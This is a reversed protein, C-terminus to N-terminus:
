HNLLDESNVSPKTTMVILFILIMLSIFIVICSSIIVPIAKHGIGYILWLTNSTIYMSYLWYSATVLYKTPNNFVDITIPIYSSLSVISALVGIIQYTMDMKTHKECEKPIDSM